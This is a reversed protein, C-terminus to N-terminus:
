VFYMRVVGPLVIVVAIFDFILNIPIRTIEMHINNNNYVNISLQMIETITERATHTSEHMARYKKNHIKHLQMATGDDVGDDVILMYLALLVLCINFPDCCGYIVTRANNRQTTLKKKNKKKNNTDNNLDRVTPAGNEQKSRENPELRIREAPTRGTQPGTKQIKKKKQNRQSRRSNIQTGHRTHERTHRTRANCECM